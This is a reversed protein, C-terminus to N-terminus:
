NRWDILLNIGDVDFVPINLKKHIKYRENFSNDIFISKERHEIFESKEEFDKLHIISDFLDSHIRLKYLTDSVNYKHKTILHVKKGQNRINYILLMVEPNVFEGRTITDDFDIYVHEYDINHKYRNILARDVEVNFKNVIPTFNYNLANYVALLPFNIGKVRFLNMTGSIRLSIELLKYKGQADKKLQLYWLGSLKLHDSITHAIKSIEDDLEINYSRTSIGNTVRSRIRPGIVLLEGKYNTLCDVTIEEGPLYECIVYDNINICNNGLEQKNNLIVAGKGGQGQDPKIFVPFKDISDLSKYVKPCFDCNDFQQYTLKKSRCIKAQNLGHMLVKANINVISEALTLVVDDHTPIIIDISFDEIINNLFPIFESTNILPVNGIYNKFVYEGHDSKGSAGFLNINVVDKLAYYAEIANEAGCPFILVNIKKDM